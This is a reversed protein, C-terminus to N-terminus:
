GVVVLFRSAFKNQPIDPINKVALTVHSPKRASFGKMTASASPISPWGSPTSMGAGAGSVGASRTAVENVASDTSLSSAVVNIKLWM